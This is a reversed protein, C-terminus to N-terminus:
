RPTAQNLFTHFLMPFFFGKQIVQLHEAEFARTTWDAADHPGSTGGVSTPGGQPPSETAPTRRVSRSSGDPVMALWSHWLFTDENSNAYEEIKQKLRSIPTPDVLDSHRNKTILNRAYTILEKCRAAADVDNWLLGHSKYYTKTVELNEDSM